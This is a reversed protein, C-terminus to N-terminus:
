FSYIQNDELELVTQGFISKYDKKNNTHIPIIRKPNIANVYEKLTEVDAHGSTHMDIIKFNNSKFIDIFEKTKPQEKYGSWMSYILNGDKANISKLDRVMSLRVM